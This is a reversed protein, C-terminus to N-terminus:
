PPDRQLIWVTPGGTVTYHTRPTTRWRREYTVALQPDSTQVVVPAGGDDAMAIVPDVLDGLLGRRRCNREVGAFVIGLSAEAPSASTEATAMEEYRQVFGPIRTVMEATTRRLDEPYETQCRNPPSWLIVGRMTGDDEVLGRAGDAVHAAFMSDAWWRIVDGDPGAGLLWRYLPVEAVGAALLPVALDRDEWSLDRVSVSEVGVASTM